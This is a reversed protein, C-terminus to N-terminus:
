EKEKLEAYCDDFYSRKIEIKTIIKLPILIDGCNRKYPEYGVYHEECGTLFLFNKDVYSLAGFFQRKDNVTIKFNASVCNNIVIELLARATEADGVGKLLNSKSEIASNM